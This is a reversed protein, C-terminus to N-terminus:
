KSVMDQIIKLLRDNQEKSQAIQVDKAGLQSVLVRRMESFEDIIKAMLSNDTEAKTITNNGGNNHSQDINNNSGVISGSIDKIMNGSGTQQNSHVLMEGEGTLLWGPNLDPILKCIREMLDKPFPVKGNIVQSFASENGYGVKKGFDKQSDSIGLTKAHRLLIRFRDVQEM